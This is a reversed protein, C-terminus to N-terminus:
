LVSQMNSELGHKVIFKKAVIRCDEDGKLRIEEVRDGINIQLIL